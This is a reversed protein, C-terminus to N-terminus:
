FVAPNRVPLQRPKRNQVPKSLSGQKQLFHRPCHGDSLKKQIQQCAKQAAKRTDAVVAAVREGWFRIHRDFLKEQNPVQEWAEVRGRDYLRDPTNEWTYVAKVGPVKWAKATDISKIRGHAITSHLLKMHLLEISQFDSCYKLKGTVKGYAKDNPLNKGIVRYEKMGPM